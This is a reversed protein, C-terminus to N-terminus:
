MSADGNINAHMTLLVMSAIFAAFLVLMPGDGTLGDAEVSFKETEEWYPRSERSPHKDGGEYYDNDKYYSTKIYFNLVLM